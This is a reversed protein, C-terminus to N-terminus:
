KALKPELTVALAEVYTLEVEDGKKLESVFKQAKPDVVDVTRTMGSPGTFTVAHTDRDVEEIVVTTKVRNAVAAGPRSAGEPMRATGTTADVAGIPTGTGKKKFEAALGEYYTVAVEDGVKVKDFNRVEAPVQITRVEDGKRLEVLRQKQDIREVTASITHTKEVAVPAPQAFAGAFAFAALAGLPFLLTQKIV